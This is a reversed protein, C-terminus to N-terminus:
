DPAKGGSKKSGKKSVPPEETLLLEAREVEVTTEDPLRVHVRQTLPDHKVVIGDGRATKVSKGVKPLGKKFAEYTEYEYALCCMLRGCVGSIKTPNLSLNQAKAMKVSVPRFDTLFRSCCLEQGCCALGGIMKAEHRVGIQRMEIRVPFRSVLLKVLERFDVRGEATFYFVYKSGDFFCETGVLKMPLNLGEIAELCFSYAEAERQYCRVKQDLDVKVAKRIVKRLGELQVVEIERDVPPFAVQGLGMGKETKVIVWDGAVLDLDSAEFHYVRSAYSFRVGVLRVSIQQQRQDDTLPPVRDAGGAARRSRRDSKRPGDLWDAADEYPDDEPADLQDLVDSSFCEDGLAYECPRECSAGAYSEAEHAHDSHSTEDNGRRTEAKAVCPCAHDAPASEDCPVPIYDESDVSRESEKREGKGSGYGWSRPLFAIGKKPIDSAM